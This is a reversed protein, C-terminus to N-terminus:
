SELPPPQKRNQPRARPAADELPPPQRFVPNDTHTLMKRILASKAMNSENAAAALAQHEQETISLTVRRKMSAKRGTAREFKTQLETNQQKLEAIQRELDLTSKQAYVGETILDTVTKHDHEAKAKLAEIDNPDLRISM